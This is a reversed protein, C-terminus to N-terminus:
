GSNFANSVTALSRNRLTTRALANAASPNPWLLCGNPCLSPRVCSLWTGFRLLATSPPPSCIPTPPFGKHLYLNYPSKIQKYDKFHLRRWKGLAYMLSADLELPMDKKIRNEIVGAIMPRDEDTGAELEILSAETVIRNLDKPKGVVDWVKTQFAKLRKEVM